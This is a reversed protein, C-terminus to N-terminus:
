LDGGAMLGMIGHAAGGGWGMGCWWGSASCLGGIGRCRSWLENTYHQSIIDVYAFFAKECGFPAVNHRRQKLHPEPPTM